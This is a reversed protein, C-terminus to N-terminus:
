LERMGISKAAGRMPANSSETTLTVAKGNGLIRYAMESILAKCFGKNRQEPITAVAGIETEGERFSLPIAFSIIENEDLIALPAGITQDFGDPNIPTETFFPTLSDLATYPVTISGAPLPAETTIEVPATTDENVPGRRCASLLLVAALALCVAARLKKTKRYCFVNM